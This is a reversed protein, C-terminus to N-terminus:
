ETGIFSYGIGPHSRILRSVRGNDHLKQRLRYIAAKVASRTVFETGWIKEVLTAYPIVRGRNRSLYYLLNWETPTLLTEEGSELTIRRESFDVVLGPLSLAGEDNRLQSMHSRRLVAKIRALLETHSFPKLIFDDAGIELGKVRDMEDQDGTVVIVPTDSFSRIERLVELGNQDPLSLDLIVVDPTEMEVLRTAEQGYTTSVVSCDPWRINLLLSITEVVEEADEVILAKLIPRRKL